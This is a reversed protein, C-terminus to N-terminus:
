DIYLESLVDLSKLTFEKEIHIQFYRHLLRLLVLREVRSFAEKAIEDYSKNLISNLLTSEKDNLNENSSGRALFSGEVLNFHPTNQEREGQPAFGMFDSLNLLFWLHFNSFSNLTNLSNVAQHLWSFFVTDGEQDANITHGLFEALFMALGSKLPNTIIDSYPNLLAINRVFKLDSTNSATCTIEVLALPHLNIKQKRNKKFGKLLFSSYGFQETYAKVIVSSDSYPFTHIILAKTNLLM